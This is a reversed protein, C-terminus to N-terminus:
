VVSLSHNSVFSGSTIVLAGVGGTSGRVLGVELVTMDFASVGLVDVALGKLTIM